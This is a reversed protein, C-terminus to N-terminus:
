VIVCVIMRPNRPNRPNLRRCTRAGPVDTQEIWMRRRPTAADHSFRVTHVHAVLGSPSANV